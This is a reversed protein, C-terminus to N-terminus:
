LIMSPLNGVSTVMLIASYIIWILGILIVAIDEMTFSRIIGFQTTFFRIFIDILVYNRVLNNRNDNDMIVM